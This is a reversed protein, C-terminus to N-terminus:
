ELLDVVIEMVHLSSSTWIWWVWTLDHLQVVPRVGSWVESWVEVDVEQIWGVVLVKLDQECRSWWDVWCLGVPVTSPVKEALHSRDPHWPMWQM